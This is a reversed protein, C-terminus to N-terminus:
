GKSAARGARPRGRRRRLWPAGAPPGPDSGPTGTRDSARTCDSAQPGFDQWYPQCFLRSYGAQRLSQFVAPVCGPDLSREFRGCSYLHPPSRLAADLRAFLSRSVDPGSCNATQRRPDCAHTCTRQLSPTRGFASPEAKKSIPFVFTTAVTKPGRSTRRLLAQAPRAFCAPMAEDRLHGFLPLHLV